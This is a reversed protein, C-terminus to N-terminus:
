VSNGVQRKGIAAPTGDRAWAHMHMRALRRAAPAPSPRHLCARLLHALVLVLVCFMPRPFFVLAASSPCIYQSTTVEWHPAPHAV